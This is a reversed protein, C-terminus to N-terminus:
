TAHFRGDALGRYWDVKSIDLKYIFYIVIEEANM